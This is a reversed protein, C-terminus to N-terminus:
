HMIPAGKTSPRAVPLVSLCSEGRGPSPPFAVVKGRITYKATRWPPEMWISIKGPVGSHCDWFGV